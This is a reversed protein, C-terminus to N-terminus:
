ESTAEQEVTLEQSKGRAARWRTKFMWARHKQHALQQAFQATHNAYREQAHDAAERTAALETRLTEVQISLSLVHQDLVVMRKVVEPPCEDLDDIDWQSMQLLDQNSRLQISNLLLARAMEGIQEPTPAPNRQSTLATKGLNSQGSDLKIDGM